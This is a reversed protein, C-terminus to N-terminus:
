KAFAKEVQERAQRARAEKAVAKSVVRKGLPAFSAKSLNFCAVGLPIGIITVCFFLGALAYYLAFWFGFLVVWLVNFLTSGSMAREGILAAPIIDKGFPLFAFRAIRFCAIGFPIGIVTACWLLGILCWAIGSFVGVFAFWLINLVFTM